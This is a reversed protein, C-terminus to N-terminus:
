GSLGEDRKDRAGIVNSTADLRTGSAWWLHEIPTLWPGM